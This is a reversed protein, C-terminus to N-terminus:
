LKVIDEDSWVCRVIEFIPPLLEKDEQCETLFSEVFERDWHPAVKNLEPIVASADDSKGLGSLSIM